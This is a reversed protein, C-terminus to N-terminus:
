FGARRRRIQGGHPVAGADSIIELGHHPTFRYRKTGDNNTLIYADPRFDGPTPVKAMVRLTLFGVKVSEGVEWCQASNRIM